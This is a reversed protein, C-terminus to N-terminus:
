PSLRVVVAQRPELHAVPVYGDFGGSATVTPATVAASGFIIEAIPEGCLPGADLTLGAGDIAEDGLNALVLLTEDGDQRLVAYVGRTADDM